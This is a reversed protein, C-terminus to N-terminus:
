ATSTASRSFVVTSEMMEMAREEWTVAQCTRSVTSCRAFRPTGIAGGRVKEVTIAHTPCAGVCAPEMGEALRPQCM